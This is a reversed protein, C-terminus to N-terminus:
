INIYVCMCMYVNYICIYIYIYVDMYRKKINKLFTLGRSFMREMGNRSHFVASVLYYRATRLCTNPMDVTRIWGGHSRSFEPQLSGFPVSPFGHPFGHILFWPDTPARGSIRHWSSNRVKICHRMIGGDGAHRPSTSCPFRLRSTPNAVTLKALM